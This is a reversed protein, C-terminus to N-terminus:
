DIILTLTTTRKKRKSDTYGVKVNCTGAATATVTSRTVTCAAGASAKKPPVFAVRTVRKLGLLAVARRTTITSGVKTVPTRSAPLTVATSTAVARLAANVEALAAARASASAADVLAQIEAPTLPKTPSGGLATIYANRQEPPLVDVFFQANETLEADTFTIPGPPPCDDCIDNDVVPPPGGFMPPITITEYDNIGWTVVTGNTDVALVASTGAALAVYNNGAPVAILNNADEGWSYLMGNAIAAATLDTLAIATAGDLETTRTMSEFCDGWWVLDHNRRLAVSCRANAAVDVVDDLGDPPTAQGADNNGWGIVTGTTTIALVHTPGGGLATIQPMDAPKNKLQGTPATHAGWEVVTGDARLAVSYSYGALVEVVPGLSGPINLQGVSNDGWGTVNGSRTIGLTHRSGAAVSLLPTDDSILRNRVFDFPNGDEDIGLANNGSMAIPM